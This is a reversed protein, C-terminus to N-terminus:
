QTIQLYSQQPTNTGGHAIGKYPVYYHGTTLSLSGTLQQNNSTSTTTTTSLDSSAVAANGTVDYLEMHAPYTASSTYFATGFKVTPNSWNSSTWLLPQGSQSYVM